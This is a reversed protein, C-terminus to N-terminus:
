DAYIYNGSEDLIPNGDEDLIAENVAVVAKAIFGDNDIVSEVTYLSTGVAITEGENPERGIDAVLVDVTKRSAWARSEFGDPQQRVEANVDVTCTIETGTSTTYTGDVGIIGIIDAAFASFDAM